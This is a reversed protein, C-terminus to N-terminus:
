LMEPDADFVSLPELIVGTEEVYRDWLAVLEVLREPHAGSLDDIEGPDRSLDYLQWSGPGYPAPLYLAKWDGQRNVLLISLQDDTPVRPRQCFAAAQLDLISALPGNEHKWGVRGAGGISVM